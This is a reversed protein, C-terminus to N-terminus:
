LRVEKTKSIPVQRVYEGTSKRNAWPKLPYQLITDGDIIVARNCEKNLQVYFVKYNKAMKFPIKDTFSKEKKWQHDKREICNIEKFPFPKDGQWNGHRVEVEWGAIVENKENLTLIDIGYRDPNEISKLKKDRLSPVRNLYSLVAEKGKVDYVGHEEKDFPKLTGLMNRM